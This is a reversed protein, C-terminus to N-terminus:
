EKSKPIRDRRHRMLIQGAEKADDLIYCHKLAKEPFKKGLVEFFVQSLVEFLPNWYDSGLLIVPRPPLQGMKIWDLITFVKMLVDADGPLAIYAFAKDIVSENHSSQTQLIGRSRVWDPVPRDLDIERFFGSWQHRTDGGPLRAPKIQDLWDGNRSVRFDMKGLYDSSLIEKLIPIVPDHESLHKPGILSVSWPESDLLDIALNMQDKLLKRYQAMTRQSKAPDDSNKLVKIGDEPFRALCIRDKPKYAFLVRDDRSIKQLVDLVPGYFADNVAVVPRSSPYEEELALLQFIEEFTGIGGPFFVAGEVGLDPHLLAEKRFPFHSMKGKNKSELYENEPENPLNLVVGQTVSGLYSRIKKSFHNKQALTLVSFSKISDSLNQNWHESLGSQNGKPVAEMIGPGGGTRISMGALGMQYGFSQAQLYVDKFKEVPITAAGLAVIGRYNMGGISRLDDEFMIKLNLGQFEDFPKTLSFRRSEAGQTLGSQYCFLLNFTLIIKKM